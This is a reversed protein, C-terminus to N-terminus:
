NRRTYKRKQLPKPAEDPFNLQAFEGHHEAALADYARAALEPAEFTGGYYHRKGSPASSDKIRLMVIFRGDKMVHVGKFGAQNTRRAM